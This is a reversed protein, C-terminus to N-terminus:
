FLREPVTIVDGPRLSFNTRMDGSKLIHDLRVSLREGSARYLLTKGANAFQSVGGAELVVDMVTMGDRYPISQPGNVAGTVRVRTLYENSGMSTVTTTVIPERIYEALVEEVRQSVQQPTQGGVLIDGAVPVTIMGDPRVPVTVSLDANRYVDVRLTDGIGIRYEDAFTPGDAAADSPPSPCSTCGVLAFVVAAGIFTKGQLM